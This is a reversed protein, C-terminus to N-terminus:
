DQDDFEIDELDDAFEQDGNIIAIVNEKHLVFAMKTTDVHAVLIPKTEQNLEEAIIQAATETATQFIDFADFEEDTEQLMDLAIHEALTFLDRVTQKREM